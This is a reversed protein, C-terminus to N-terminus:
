CARIQELNSHFRSLRNQDITHTGYWVREFARVNEDFAGLLDPQTRARRRLERDYEWNSKHKAISILNRQALHALGALYSARLALRLDGAEVLQAALRLWADEPLQDAVLDESHLDPVMPAVPSAVTMAAKARRRKWVALAALLVAFAIATYLVPRAAGGTWRFASTHGGDEPGFIFNGLKDIMRLAWRWAMALRSQIANFFDEIFRGMFSRETERTKERPLRWTFERRQLVRDISHDLQTTAAPPPSVEAARVAPSHPAGVLVFCLLLLAFLPRAARARIQQLQVRLDRGSKLSGGYFCRLVFLAKRVPDFTLYTFAAITAFVTTNLLSLPSRSFETEIGFIMKLLQPAAFLAVGANLAIILGFLDLLGIAFHAQRPWLRSQRAAEGCIVSLKKAQGDGLVGVNQYFSYVWVYPILIQAAILRAFLGTPQVMAQVHLLRAIRAADWRAATEGQLTARLGSAFVSQWGKMWVYLCAMVLSAELLRTRAFASRTMDSFFYLLGLMAPISGVYYAALASSPARGILQTAEEILDLAGKEGHVRKRSSM